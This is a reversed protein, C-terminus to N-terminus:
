KGMVDKIVSRLKSASEQYTQMLITFETGFTVHRVGKKIWYAATEMDPVMMCPIKDHRQCADILIEYYEIIKPHMEQGPFGLDLSMDGRGIVAADVGKVSLIQDINQIAKKSEIQVSIFTEENATNIFEKSDRKEFGAPVGQVMAGREGLPPYKAWRVIAEAEEPKDVHPILLGLAGCDLPRSVLYQAKGSPRVVPVLGSLSATFCLDAVTEMSMGSHEMDIQVYDFGANAIIKTIYPTRIGLIWTGIVVEGNKLKKKMFNEKLM